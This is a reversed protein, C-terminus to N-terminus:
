KDRMSSMLKKLTTVADGRHVVSHCNSCLLMIDEVKTVEGPQMSAIPKVHHAEIFGAGLEGYTKGFSFGCVQCFLDSHIAVFRKKALEVVERNRERAKHLWFYTAGERWSGGSYQESIDCNHASDWFSFLREWESANVKFNTGQRVTVIALKSLFEDLELQARTLMGEEPSLRIEDLHIGVQVDSLEGSPETWLFEGLREPDEVNEKPTCVTAVIGKAVIGAVGKAKGASRWIFVGDGIRLDHHFRTVSWYIDQSSKLYADVDFKDPTGQFIWYPM